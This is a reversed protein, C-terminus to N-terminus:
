AAPEEAAAAPALYVTAEVGQYSIGLAITGDDMKEVTFLNQGAASLVLKGDEFATSVEADGSTSTMNSSLVAKGAEIKLNMSVTGMGFSEMMDSSIHMGMIDIACLTWDGFFEEESEAAVASATEVVPAEKSFKVIAGDQEMSFEGDVIEATITKEDFTLSLNNGDLAWTGTDNESQGAMEMVMEATGDEKLEMTMTMGVEAPKITMGEASMELAYWIGTVDDAMAPVLMCAMCLILVLSVLKKM